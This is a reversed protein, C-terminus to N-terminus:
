DQEPEPERLINEHMDYWSSVVEGAEILDVVIGEHTITVHRESGDGLVVKVNNLVEVYVGDDV